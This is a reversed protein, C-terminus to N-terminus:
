GKEVQNAKWRKYASKMCVGCPRYGAKIASDEDAFFVRHKVYQGKAIHRQASPCDLRGYIKLGKHGGWNGPTTSKYDQGNPGILSYIKPQGVGSVPKFKISNQRAYREAHSLPVSHLTLHPCEHFANTGIQRVSAAIIASKLDNCKFFAHSGISQVDDEIILSEIDQCGYFAGNGISLVSGPIFVSKLGSCKLFASDHIATVPLGEIEPPIVLSEGGTYNNITISKGAISYILGNDQYELPNSLVFSDGGTYGYDELVLKQRKPLCEEHIQFIKLDRKPTCSLQYDYTTYNSMLGVGDENKMMINFGCGWDWEARDDYDNALEEDIYRELAWAGDWYGYQILQIFREMAQKFSKFEGVTDSGVYFCGFHDTVEISYM